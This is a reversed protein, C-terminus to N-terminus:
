LLFFCLMFDPTKPIPGNLLVAAADTERFTNPLPPTGALGRSKSPVTISQRKARYARGLVAVIKSKIGYNWVGQAETNKVSPLSAIRTKLLPASLASRSHATDENGENEETLIEGPKAKIYFSRARSIVSLAWASICTPPKPQEAKYLPRGYGPDPKAQGERAPRPFSSGERGATIM